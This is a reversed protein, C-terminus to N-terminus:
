TPCPGFRVLNAMVMFWTELWRVSREAEDYELEQMIEEVVEGTHCPHLYWCPIGLTPHDGQSLLSFASDPLPLAFASVRAEPLVQPWFLPARLIEQM